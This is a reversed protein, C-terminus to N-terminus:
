IVPGIIEVKKGDRRLDSIKQKDEKSKILDGSIVLKKIKSLDFSLVESLKECSYIVQLEELENFKSLDLEGPIDCSVFQLKKLNNSELEKITQTDIKCKDFAVSTTMINRFPEFTNIKLFKFKIWDPNLKINFMDEPLETTEIVIEKVQAKPSIKVKSWDHNRSLYLTKINKGIYPKRIPSGMVDMYPTKIEDELDVDPTFVYRGYDGEYKKNGSYKQIIDTFVAKMRDPYARDFLIKKESNDDDDDFSELNRLVMRSLPLQDSIKENDWFMPTDFVLFAPISNPDFVNGLVQQRYGGGYLHQCSSYFKSISMNLIDKPNHSISLYMDKGFVDFDGLVYERNEEISALNRLQAFDRNDFVNSNVRFDPYCRNYDQLFSNINVLNNTFIPDGAEKQVKVLNGEEDRVPRGTEDKQVMETANTESVALKRFVSDFIFVMQHITPSKINLDKLIVKQKENSLADINLSKSLIENFKDPLDNLDKFIRMLDCDFFAQLALNKDEESLKWKGQEINPTADVEEYDLYKEGWVKAVEKAQRPLIVDRIKAENLYQERSKIWKM